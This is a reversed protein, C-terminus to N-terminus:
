KYKEEEFGFQSIRNIQHDAEYFDCNEIAIKLIHKWAKFALKLDKTINLCSELYIIAEQKRALGYCAEGLYYNIEPNEQAKHILNSLM